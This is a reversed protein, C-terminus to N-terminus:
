RQLATIRHEAGRTIAVILMGGRPASAFAAQVEAPTPSDTAGIATIVDGAMIGAADAASDRGVHVIEAGVRAVRRMSLGLLSGATATARVPTSVEVDRMAGGRITTLMVTPRAPLRAVRVKWDEVTRIAAGDIAVIVDGARIDRAAVSSPNVWAVAAGAEAGSAVALVSTLPQVEIGLDTATTPPERRLADAARLLEQGPVIVEGASGTAVVGVLEAMESFVFEGVRLGSDRPVSWVPANWRRTAIPTMMGVFVPRFSIGDASASSVFLYRPSDLRQPLWVLPLPSRAPRDVRMVALGTAADLAVIGLPQRGAERADPDLVAVALGDDISLAAIQDIRLASADVVDDIVPVVPVLLSAVRARVEAISSALDPFSGQTTLPALLPPVPTSVVPREPFRIRALAWLALVAICVTTLLRRTERSVRPRHPAMAGTMAFPTTRTQM